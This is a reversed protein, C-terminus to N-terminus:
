VPIIRMIWGDNPGKVLFRPNFNNFSYRRQAGNRVATYGGKLLDAEGNPDEVIWHDDGFGSVVSWHGGGSPNTIPGQHLWGVGVPRGALIEDKVMQASANNIFHADLGLSLLAQVQANADTSDGFRARVANYADDSKIKGWYMAIMAMSSSFCERYGTGSANDLQSQWVLKLPNTFTKASPKSPQNVSPIARVAKEFYAEREALGNAPDRGNVKASVQRCSAGNDIFANLANLHWWFGSISFPYKSAVYSCGNMVAQDGIFDAFRQYNYRGTVQIPGVGKFRVGDGPQTNGLDARGEYASGDALEQMWRLGGSEHGIQALFHRIRAPTTISFQLLCANLDRLQEPTPARGFVATAQTLTVLESAPAPPPAAAPTSSPGSGQWIAYLSGDRNLAEPKLAVLETLAAKVFARHREISSDLNNAFDRPLPQSSM